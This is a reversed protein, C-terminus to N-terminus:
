TSLAAPTATPPRVPSVAKTTATQKRQRQKQTRQEKGYGRSGCTRRKDDHAHHHTGVGGTHCPIVIRLGDRRKDGHQQYRQAVADTVTEHQTKDHIHQHFGALAYLAKALDTGGHPHQKHDKHQPIHLLAKLCGKSASTCFGQM